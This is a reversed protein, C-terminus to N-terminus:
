TFAQTLRHTERQSGGRRDVHLVVASGPPLPAEFGQRSLAGLLAPLAPRHTCLVAPLDAAVSAHLIETAREVAAERDQAFGEESLSPELELPLEAAAAFPTVTAVCRVADSTYVRRVGYARLLSTVAETQAAGEPTLPRDLDHGTWEKRTLAQAHRLVIFPVRPRDLSIADLVSADDPRTFRVRAEDLTLWALADVENNPAFDGYSDAVARWYHV